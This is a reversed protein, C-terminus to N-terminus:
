PLRVPAAFPWRAHPVHSCTRAQNRVHQARTRRCACARPARRPGPRRCFRESDLQAHTKTQPQAHNRPGSVYLPDHTKGPELHPDPSCAHHLLPSLGRRSRHRPQAHYARGPPAPLCSAPHHLAGIRKPLASAWVGSPYRTVPWSKTAADFCDLRSRRELSCFVFFIAIDILPNCAKWQM